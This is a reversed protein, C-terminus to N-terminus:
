PYDVINGESDTKILWVDDGGNGFSRTYGTVIYGGDTTQQVSYGRDDNGGGFTRNWEENGQSDTKILWIDNDGNGFSSTYGTIIYGGDDTQQVLYGRDGAGAGFTQNWEENGQSDTKILWVDNDGNGFSSTNGTIIYGGDTTQQVSYGRDSDSGGFTQNWEENGESDTMILWVDTGYSSTRGTIIFGGDTTQQVSHCQDVGSGGFTQNWEENGTSGTKILWVNANIENDENGYGYSYTGGTIIYGGDTTQQVSYGIDSDSGGFIRTFLLPSSDGMEINSDSHLGWVNVVVIQYYRKEYDNVGTVTYSTETNNESTFVETQDNMNETQSEYLTYSQFDDDNNQSWTIIFSYDEFVIPYLESPTPADNVEIINYSSTNLGTYAYMRYYYLITDSVFALSDTWERLEKEIVTYEEQWDNNNIKRDVKFGSINERDYEWILVIENSSLRITMLNKPAWEDPNIETDPDNPNSWIREPKDCTMMLLTLLPIIYRMM